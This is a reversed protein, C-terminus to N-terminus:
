RAPGAALGPGGAGAEVRGEALAQWAPLLERLLGATELAPGTVKRCNAEVLRSFAFEYLALLRQALESGAQLDLSGALEVLIDQARTLSAHAEERDEREIARVGRAIFRLAGQYLLVVLQSPSATGVATAQYVRHPNTM